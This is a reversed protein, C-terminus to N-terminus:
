GELFAIDEKSLTLENESLSDHLQSINSFGAVASTQLPNCTLYALSLAAPSCSLKRCLKAVNNARKINHESLFRDEAKKSLKSASLYKTFFGKAQSSFAMVPFHNELYWKYESDNMCVVTEDAYGAPTTSALSFFIQSISFPTLNNKAAYANAEEIRKAKWNSAGLFRVKGSTVLAHLIPMIESVDLREDDRHLFYIDIYDTRLAELSQAIDSHISDKDLRSKKMNDLPPHGGKTSIIIRDRAYRSEIWQGTIKESLGDAGEIWSSYVRAADLCSGGNKFYTDLMEFYLPKKGADVFVGTGFTIKPMILSDAATKLEFTRM